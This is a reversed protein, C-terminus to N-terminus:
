EWLPHSKWHQPLGMQSLDIGSKEAQLLFDTMREHWASTPALTRLLTRCIFLCCAITDSTIVSEAALCNLPPVWVGRVEDYVYYWRADKTAKPIQPLRFFRKNWIRAHHACDNRLHNLAHMWSSILKSAVGWTRVIPRRVTEKASYDFFYVLPGFELFSMAIELPPYDHNDTDRAFFNKLAENRSAEKSGKRVRKWCDPYDKWSPFYDPSAYSYPGYALTHLYALQSRLAVEIREIADLFLFRLNRDFRYLSWLKELSTGAVFVSLVNGVADVQRFPRAYANLRYFGINEIRMVLEQKDAILGQSLLM